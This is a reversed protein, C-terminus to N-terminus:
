HLIQGISERARRWVTPPYPLKRRLEAFTRGMGMPDWPRLGSFPTRDLYAEFEGAFPGRYDAHWPKPWGVFHVVQDSDAASDPDVHWVNWSRDLDLWRGQLAWNLADQDHLVLKHGLEEAASLATRTLDERRWADLDAVMLGSNFYRRDTLGLRHQIQAIERWSGNTVAGVLMGELDQDWLAAVDKEVLMDCDVWICRSVSEPLIEPLFLKSYATHTIRKSRLLHRVPDADFRYFAVEAAAEVVISALADRDEQAVGSAILHM